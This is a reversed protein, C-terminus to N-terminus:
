ARGLEVFQLMNHKTSENIFDPADRWLIGHEGEPGMEAIKGSLTRNTVLERTADQLVSPPTEIMKSFLAEDALNSRIISPALGNITIGEKQLEPGLSRVLGVVGHKSAAYIPGVSFPYIGANSATCLISGGRRGKRIYHVALHTTYVVGYLNVNLTTLPPPIDPDERVALFPERSEASVGANAVVIDIHGVENFAAKFAAAQSEYSSVDCRIFTVRSSPYTSQLSRLAKAATTPNVDLITVVAERSLLMQVIYLGIGSAGGTSTRGKLDVREVGDASSM